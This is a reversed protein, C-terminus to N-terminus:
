VLFVRDDFTKNCDDCCYRRYTAKATYHYGRKPRFSFGGCQPCCRKGKSDINCNPMGAAFVRLIQYVEKLSVVDGACYKNVRKFAEKDGLTMKLWDDPWNKSLKQAVGLFTAVNDLRNSSLKLHSRALKCTDSQKLHPAPPIPALHYKLLKANVYRRDFKDGYHAVLHDAELFLPAIKKLLWGESKSPNKSSFNPDDTLDVCQAKTDDMWMYGFHSIHSVDASMRVSTDVWGTYLRKQYAHGYSHFIEIDWLLTKM